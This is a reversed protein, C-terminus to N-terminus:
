RGREVQTEPTGILRALAWTVALAPEDGTVRANQRLLHWTMPSTLVRVLGILRDREVRPLGSTERTLALDIAHLRREESRRSMEHGVNSTILADVVAASEDLRRFLEPVFAILAASSTTPLQSLGLQQDLEAWIGDLLDARAPFHRYVTRSAIGAHRGVSEHSFESHPRETLLGIAAEIIRHHTDAAQQERLPSSYARKRKQAMDSVNICYGRRVPLVAKPQDGPRYSPIM